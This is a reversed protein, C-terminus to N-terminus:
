ARGYDRKALCNPRLPLPEQCRLDVITLLKLKIYNVCNLVSLKHVVEIGFEPPQGVFTKNPALAFRSPQPLYSSHGLSLSETLRWLSCSSIRHKLDVPEKPVPNRGTTDREKIIHIYLGRSEMLVLLVTSEQNVCDSLNRYGRNQTTCCRTAFIDVTAM